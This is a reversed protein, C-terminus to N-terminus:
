KIVAVTGKSTHTQGLINTYDLVWFYTGASVNNGDWSFQPDSSEFVLGGWRNFVSIKISCSRNIEVPKFFDNEGDNNPTFVNPMVIECHCNQINIYAEDQIVGCQNKVEVSYFGSTTPYITATTEGTNWLFTSNTANFTLPMNLGACFTADQLQKRPAELRNVVITDVGFRCDAKASAIYTGPQRVIITSDYSTTSWLYTHGLGRGINLVLSDGSCLATDKPLEIPNNLPLEGWNICLNDLSGTLRRIVEGRITNGHQVHTLSDVSGPYNFTIPSGPIHLTFENDSYVSLQVRNQKTKELKLFHPTGLPLAVIRQSIYEKTSDRAHITFFLEGTPPNSASFAVLIGDQLGPIHNTCPLDPCDFHFDQTSATVGLVVHGAYPLLNKQGVSVATFEFKAEWCDQENLIRGLPKYVRKQFERCKSGNLYQVKGNLIEVESGIQSWGNTNSYDEHFNCQSSVKQITFVCLFLLLLIYSNPRKRM